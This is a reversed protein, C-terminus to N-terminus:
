KAVAATAPAKPEIRTLKGGEEEYNQVGVAGVVNYGKSILLDGIKLARGAHNSM